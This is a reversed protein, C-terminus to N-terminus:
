LAKFLKLILICNERWTNYPIKHSKPHIGKKYLNIWKKIDESLVVPDKTNEFYYVHDQAIERFISIDRAIIPKQYLAAEILPIGFGEAFSPVIVCDSSQYLEQLKENSVYKMYHLNQNLRPHNQLYDIFEDMMWGVRGVISLHINQYQRSQWLIDFADLLQIHGKRPEITAVIIFDLKQKNQKKTATAKPHSVPAIHIPVIKKDTYHSIDKAGTFSTAILCDSIKSINKLWNLHTINQGKKFFDPFQIPLIDHILFVIKAGLLKYRNYLNEKIAIDVEAPALDPSYIIDGKNLSIAKDQISTEFDNTCYYHVTEDPTKKLYITKLTMGNPLIELLTNVQSEIVRFIGTKPNHRIIGSIDILIQRKYLFDFSGLQVTKVLQKTDSIKSSLDILQQTKTLLNFNSNKM